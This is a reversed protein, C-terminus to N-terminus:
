PVARLRREVEELPLELQRVASGFEELDEKWLGHREIIETFDEVDHGRMSWGNETDGVCHCLEHDLLALRQAVTASRWPGAALMLVFDPEEAALAREAPTGKRATGLVLKGKSMSPPDRFLVVIRADSLHEHHAEILDRLHSLVAGDEIGARRITTESM